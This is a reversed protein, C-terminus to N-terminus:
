AKKIVSGAYVGFVMVLVAALGFWTLAYSLHNNVPQPLTEAPQPYSGPSPHGLAVLTLPAVSRAGLAAGIGAPDLTYFRRAAANDVASLWTPRDPPRVYGIITTQGSTAPAPAGEPVWGLDVLVPPLGPRDLLRLQQSGMRPGQPTDNVQDAYAATEAGLTGSASVRTFADAGAGLPVPPSREAGAIRSLIAEKWALRHLQWVGLGILLALMMATLMAPGALREALYHARSRSIIM